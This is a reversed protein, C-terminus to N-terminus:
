DSPVSERQTEVPSGCTSSSYSWRPNVLRKCADATRAPKVDHAWKSDHLEKAAAAFEWESIAARFREFKLFGRTGVTWWLGITVLQVDQPCMDFFQIYQRCVRRAEALDAEFFAFVEAKSYDSKRPGRLVHGVGVCWQDGDPYPTFRVGEWRSLYQFVAEQPVPDARGIQVTLNAALAAIVLWVFRRTM